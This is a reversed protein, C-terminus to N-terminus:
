HAAAGARPGPSPRAMARDYHARCEAERGRVVRLGTLVGRGETVVTCQREQHDGDYYYLVVWDRTRDLEHARATNSFLATFHWNGRQTHLVPLWAENGPNFRKPAIKELRGSLTEALYERDVDLLTAVDPQDGPVSGTIPKRLRRGLMQGLAARLNMARRRGIGPVAEVRGDHAALELSELSDVHLEDHLRRALEPGVGPVTQFLGVPNVDGRLRELRQFRGTALMEQIAAGIGSGIGPLAVLGEAGQSRFLEGIDRDLRAITDAAKRYAGVRFPNAGQQELLDAMERLRDAVTSNLAPNLAM